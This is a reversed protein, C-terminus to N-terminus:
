GLRDNKIFIILGKLWIRVAKWFPLISILYNIEVLGKLVWGFFGWIVIPGLKAIAWKGGVPIIYPYDKPNYNSIQLQYNPYHSKKISEMINHAVIKAQSLAARAVGPIPRGTKPDYFCVADGIGYIKGYLKLDPSQPLCEMGGVVEVRGRGEKKLPLGGMLGAVKVGGTWILIDYSLKRGSKLGVEGAQTKEITENTIIEAGLRRLRKQVRGVISPPFGPLISSAGEVISVQVERKFGALWACLEGALEVGTSGGGGILIRLKPQDSQVVELVRDRIKVADLFTKLQLSYKELGPIEFYNTESGLALVLYDFKLQDGNSCHIDGHALDLTEVEGNILRINTNRLMEGIPFTVLSKIEPYNAHEKEVTAAEYLTPTYTHYGNRDILIVQCNNGMGARRIKRDLLIATRLGGFGAGLIVINKKPNM